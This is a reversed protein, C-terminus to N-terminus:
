AIAFNAIIKLHPTRQAPVKFFRLRPGGSNWSTFVYQGQDRAEIKLNQNQWATITAPTVVSFDGVLVTRGPVNSSIDILVKRPYVDRRITTSLGFSNVATFIVRLFSNTAALFDEPPPTAVSVLNNGVRIPMFPHSHSEHRIEIEWSLQTDNLHIGASTAQGRLPFRDGVNFLAGAGPSIISATPIPGITITLFAKGTQGSSDTVTLVIEKPGLKSYSIIPNSKTSTAGDDLDWFFTLAKGEPDVSNLGFFSVLENQGHITKFVTIKAIPPQNGNGIYRIRRVSQTTATRSFIICQKPTKIRDSSFM